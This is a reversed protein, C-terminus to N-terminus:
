FNKKIRGTGLRSLYRGSENNINYIIINKYLNFFYIYVIM